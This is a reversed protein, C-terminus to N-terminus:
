TCTSSTQVRVRCLLNPVSMNLLHSALHLSSRGPWTASERKTRKFCQLRDVLLMDAHDLIVLLKSSPCVWASMFTKLFISAFDLGLFLFSWTWTDSTVTSLSLQPLLLWRTQLHFSHRGKMPSQLSGLGQCTPNAPLQGFGM